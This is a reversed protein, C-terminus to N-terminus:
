VTQAQRLTKSHIQKRLHLAELQVKNVTPQQLINVCNKSWHGICIAGVFSLSDPVGSLVSTRNCDCTAKEQM